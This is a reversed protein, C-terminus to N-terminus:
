CVGRVLIPLAYSRHQPRRTRESNPPRSRQIGKKVQLDDPDECPQCEDQNGGDLLSDDEPGGEGAAHGPDQPAGSSEGQAQEEVEQQVEEGEAAAVPTEHAAQKASENRKAETSVPASSM